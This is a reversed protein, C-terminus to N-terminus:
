SRVGGSDAIILFLRLLGVGWREDHATVSNKASWSAEEARGWFIQLEM